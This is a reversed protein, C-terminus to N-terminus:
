AVAHALLLCDMKEHSSKSWRETDITNLEDLTQVIPGIQRLVVALREHAENWECTEVVCSPQHKFDANAIVMPTLIGSQKFGSDVESDKRAISGDGLKLFYSINKKM